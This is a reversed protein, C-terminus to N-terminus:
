TPVIQEDGDLVILADVPCAACGEVLLDRAIPEADDRFSIIGEDDLEFVEGAVNICNTSAICRGRDIRVTLNGFRREVFDSV